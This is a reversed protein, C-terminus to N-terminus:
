YMGTYWRCDINHGEEDECHSRQEKGQNIEGESIAMLYQSFQPFVPKLLNWCTEAATEGHRPSRTKRPWGGTHRGKQADLAGELLGHVLGRVLVLCVAEPRSSERLWFKVISMDYVTYYM